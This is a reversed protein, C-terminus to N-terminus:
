NWLKIDTVTDSNNDCTTFIGTPNVDGIHGGYKIDFDNPYRFPETIIPIIPINGVGFLKDLQGKLSIAEKETLEFVKKGVKIKISEISAKM